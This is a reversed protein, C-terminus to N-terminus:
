RRVRSRVQITTDAVSTNYNHKGVPSDIRGDSRQDNSTSSETNGVVTTTPTPRKYDTGATTTPTPRKYDTGATTTPTPRKYTVEKSNTTPTEKSTNPSQIAPMVITCGLFAGSLMILAFFKTITKMKTITKTTDKIKLKKNYSYKKIVSLELKKWRGDEEFSLRHVAVAVAEAM